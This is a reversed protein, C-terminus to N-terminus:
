EAAKWEGVGDMRGYDVMVFAKSPGALPQHLLSNMQVSVLYLVIV